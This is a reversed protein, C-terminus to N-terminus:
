DEGKEIAPIQSADIVKPKQYTKKEEEQEQLDDDWITKQETNSIYTLKYSMSEDDFILEMEPSSIAEEKNKLAVTSSVKCGFAPVNIERNKGTRSDPIETTKISVDVKMTISGEDSRSELMTKFLKQLVGDFKNRADEFVESTIRLEKINESM